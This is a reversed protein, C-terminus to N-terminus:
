RNNPEQRTAVLPFVACILAALAYGGAAQGGTGWGISLVVDTGTWQFGHMIGFWSLVAGAILYGSARLFTGEIISVTAAALVMATFIFGQELSFLGSAYIDHKTLAKGLEPTFDGGTTRIAGKVLLAGWAAVGPMLGIVVAPAHATPTAQFAQAAIVIGIWLVIAMGAEIPIAWAVVGLTSTLALVTVFLGNLWSYGIRAGLSKWGPHGIYITTPFCSGFLAAVVTGAGNAALSPATPFRDGAAEASDLNQLSGVLNFLGMPVIISLYTLGYGSQVAELLDGLVPAPLYLRPPSYDHGVPADGLIWALITGILVAVLGGPIGGRFRLRGFYVLCVIAFTALGVVPSAYTRFLFGLSIFTLAIGALTSLLAARPVNKRIWDAGCAGALEILGSGLCAVLGAQWALHSDGTAVKVPLMVLFIFAFVSPTNIGYPLACVDSRRERRALKMAQWSYFLNGVLLSMAAGPLIQGYLLAPEFGLVAQCLGVIVLLQVLNDLALGFFGDLDGRVFWRASKVPQTM